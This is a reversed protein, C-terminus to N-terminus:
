PHGAPDAWPNGYRPDRLLQADTLSELFAVVAAIEDENLDARSVFVSKLPSASGDGKFPGETVTRGGASYHKVADELTSVSGDHMYPATIAVNRLSPTRFRGMDARDGTFAVLGTSGPYGGNSDLNYLGTNHFPAADHSPRVSADTKAAVADTLDAGHHCGGCGLRKSFFLKRGADAAESLATSEGRLYNDYPSNSSVLTREFCALARIVHGITFPADEDPFAATFLVQYRADARLEALMKEGSGHVGLEIPNDGFMPVLAQAELTDLLPNAWTLPDLHSVNTLGPVSRQGEAGTSGM